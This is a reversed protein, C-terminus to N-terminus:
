EDDGEGIPDFGSLRVLEAEGLEEGREAATVLPTVVGKGVAAGDIEVTREVEVLHRGVDRREQFLEPDLLGIHQAEAHAAAHRQADRGCLRLEDGLQHDDGHVM